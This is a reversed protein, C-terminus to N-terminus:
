FWAPHRPPDAWGGRPFMGVARAEQCARYWAEDRSAGEGRDGPLDVGSQGRRQAHPGQPHRDLGPGHESPDPGRVRGHLPLWAGDGPGRRAHHRIGEIADLRVLRHRRLRPRQRPDPTPLGEIGVGALDPRGIPRPDRRDARPVRGPRLGHAMPLPPPDVPGVRGTPRQRGRGAMGRPATGGTMIRATRAARLGAQDAGSQGGSIVLEIAVIGEKEGGRSGTVEAKRPGRRGIAPRKM